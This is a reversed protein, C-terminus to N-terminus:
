ETRNEFSDVLQRVQDSAVVSQQQEYDFMVLICTGRTVVAAQNISYIAHDMTLSKSGIRSIRSATLISDPYLLQAHFDIQASALIPALRQEELARLGSADFYALRATEFWRLSVVNNIHQYADQDGWQVPIEMVASFDSLAEPREALPLLEM